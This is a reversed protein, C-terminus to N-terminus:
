RVNSAIAAPCRMTATPALLDGCVVGRQRRQGPVPLGVVTRGNRRLMHEVEARVLLEGVPDGHFPQVVPVIQGGSADHVADAGRQVPVELRGGYPGIPCRGAQM